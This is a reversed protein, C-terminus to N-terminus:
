LDIELKKITVKKFEETEGSKWKVTKITEKTAEMGKVKVKAKQKWSQMDANENAKDEDFKVEEKLFDDMAKKIPDQDDDALFMYAYNIVTIRKLETPLEQSSVGIVGFDERFINKRHKREGNGDCILLQILIDEATEELFAM